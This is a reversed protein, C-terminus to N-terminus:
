PAPAAGSSVAPPRSGKPALKAWVADSSAAAALLAYSSIVVAVWRMGFERTIETALAPGFGNVMAAINYSVGVASNRSRVDPLQQTMWWTLAGVHTGVAASVVLSGLVLAALRGEGPWSMLAFCPPALVAALLLSKRIVVGPDNLRDSVVGGGLLGAFWCLMALTNLTYAMAGDVAGGQTWGCEGFGEGGGASGAAAGVSPDWCSEAGDGVADAYECSATPDAATDSQECLFRFNGVVNPLWNFLIWYGCGYPLNVFVIRLIPMRQERFVTCLPNSPPTEGQAAEASALEPSEPMHKRLWAAAWVLLLSFAFPVRWGWDLLQAPTFIKHCLGVVLSGVVSASSTVHVLSGVVGKKGPPAIEMAYTMAGSLQGGVSFGQLMRILVLLATSLWGLTAYGPLIAIGATPIGMIMVSLRLAYVRGHRDGLYGFFLGGFPRALFGGAFATFAELLQTASDGPPFFTRSIETAFLGFLAFDFWELFNGICAGVMVKALSQGGVDLESLKTPAEAGGELVAGPAAGGGAAAAPEAESGEERAILAEM